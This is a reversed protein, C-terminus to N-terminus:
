WLAARARERARRIRAAGALFVDPTNCVDLQRGRRTVIVPGADCASLLRYGGAYGLLARRVNGRTASIWGRLHRAGARYGDHTSARRPCRALPEPTMPGCSEMAGGNEPTRADTYRSEHAAISLLLDPDVDLEAGAARAAALHEAAVERSIPEPATTRLAEIDASASFWALLHIVVDTM